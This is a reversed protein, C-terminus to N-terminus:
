RKVGEPLLTILWDLEDKATQRMREKHNLLENPLFNSKESDFKLRSYYTYPTNKCGTYGTRERVPCGHCPENNGKNFIFIWCLPCNDSGKDTEIGNVINRWKQISGRLANLTKSDM